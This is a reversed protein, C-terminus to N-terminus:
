VVRQNFRILFITGKERIIEMAGNLQKAFIQLLQMGFSGAHDPVISEPLTIGDDRVQLIFTNVDKVLSVVITGEGRDKFAHKMANTVLENVILGCYIATDLDFVTKPIEAKITLQMSQNDHAAQLDYLMKGLYDSIEVKDLNNTQLLREHILAISHIKKRTNELFDSVDSKGLALIKIYIISSILQLNNKVRHHIEKILVEKELVSSILKKETILKQTIDTAIAVFSRGELLQIVTDVDYYVGNKRSHKIQLQIRDTEGRRLPGLLAQLAFEDPYYFLDSFKMRTLEELSYGVNRLASTNAFEFCLTDINFLYIENYSERVIKDLRAQEAELKKRGTIDHGISQIEYVEGQANRLPVDIWEQWQHTGDGLVTEHQLARPKITGAVVGELFERRERHVRGPLFNFISEGILQKHHSFTREFARNVFTLRWDPTYRCIMEQQDDVISRYRAESEALSDATERLRKESERIMDESAKREQDTRLAEIIYGIVIVLPQLEQRFANGYGGAKNALGIMGVQIGSRLIPIGIFSRLPPYGPRPDKSPRNTVVTEGLRIVRELPAGVGQFEVGAGINGPDQPTLEEDRTDILAFTRVYPEGNRELVEGIFGLESETLALINKLATHFFITPKVDRIFQLQALNIIELVQNQKKLARRKQYLEVEDRKRETISLAVGALACVRGHEDRLPFKIALYTESRGDTVVEQEFEELRGSSLVTQDSSTFVEAQSPEFLDHDTYLGHKPPPVRIFKDKFLKNYFTYRGQLDKMFVVLPAHDTITRLLEESRLMEQVATKLSTIDSQVVMFGPPEEDEGVLPIVEVDVWYKNGSKTYHILETRFTRGQRMMNEMYALTEPSTEPGNLFTPVRGVVEELAYGSIRVFGQNVWTIRGRADIMLIGNSTRSAIMNLTQRELRRQKRRTVDRFMGIAVGDPLFSGMAEIDKVTGMATIMKFEVRVRSVPQGADYMGEKIKDYILARDQETVYKDIFAALTMRLPAEPSEELLELLEASLTLEGTGLTLEAIGTKSFRMVERLRSAAGSAGDEGPVAPHAAMLWCNKDEYMVPATHVEYPRDQERLIDHLCVGVCQQRSYGFAKVAAENVDIIRATHPECIWAPLPHGHFLDTPKNEVM